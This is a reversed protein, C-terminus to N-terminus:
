DEYAEGRIVSFHHDRSKLWFQLAVSALNDAQDSYWEDLGHYGHYGDEDIYRKSKLHKVNIDLYESLEKEFNDINSM